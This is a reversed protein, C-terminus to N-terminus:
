ERTFPQSSKGPMRQQQSARELPSMYRRQSDESAYRFNEMYANLETALKTPYRVIFVFGPERTSIVFESLQKRLKEEPIPFENVVVELAPEGYLPRIFRRKGGKITDKPYLDATRVTKIANLRQYAVAIKHGATRILLYEPLCQVYARRERFISAVWLALGVLMLLAGLLALQEFTLLKQPVRAEPIFYPIQMILGALFMLQAAPRFRRAIFHYVLLHHKLGPKSASEKAM